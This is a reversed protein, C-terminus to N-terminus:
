SCAKTRGETQHQVPYAASFQYVRVTREQDPDLSYFM